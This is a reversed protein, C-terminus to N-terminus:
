NIIIKIRESIKELYKKSNEVIKPAVKERGVIKPTVKRSKFFKVSFGFILALVIIDIADSIHFNMFISKIVELFSSATANALIPSLDFFALM